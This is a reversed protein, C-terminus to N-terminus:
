CFAKFALVRYRNVARGRRSRHEGRARRGGPNGGLEVIAHKLATRASDVLPKNRINPPALDIAKFADNLKDVLTAAVGYQQPGTM